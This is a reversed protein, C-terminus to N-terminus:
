DALDQLPVTSPCRSSTSLLDGLRALHVGEPVGDTCSHVADLVRPGFLAIAPEFKPGGDEPVDHLLRAVRLDEDGGQRAVLWAVGVPHVIYSISTGKRTQGPAHM